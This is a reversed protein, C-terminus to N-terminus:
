ILGDLQAKRILGQVSHAGLQHAHVRSQQFNLENAYRQSVDWDAFPNQVPLTYGAGNLHGSRYSEFRIWAGSAHTRDVRETPSGTTSDVPMGFSKMMHKLGCEAAIGYLHDANAWRANSFLLDADQRHRDHANFFDANM